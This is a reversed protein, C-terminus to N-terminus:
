SLIRTKLPNSPKEADGLITSLIFESKFVPRSYMFYTFKVLGGYYPRKARSSLGMRAPTVM